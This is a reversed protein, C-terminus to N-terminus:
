FLSYCFLVEETGVTFVHIYRQVGSTTHTDPFSNKCIKKILNIELHDSSYKELQGEELDFIALVVGTILKEM